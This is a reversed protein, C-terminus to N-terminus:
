AYDLTSPPGHVVSFWLWLVYVCVCVCVQLACWWTCGVLMGGAYGRIYLLVSVCGANCVM